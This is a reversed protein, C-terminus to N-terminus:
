GLPQFVINRRLFYNWFFTIMCSVIKSIFLNWGLVEFFIYISSTGIALGILSVGYLLFLSLHHSKTRKFVFTTSAIYNFLTAIGFSGINAVVWDTGLFEVLSLFTLVDICASGVAVIFYRLLELSIPIQNHLIRSPTWREM